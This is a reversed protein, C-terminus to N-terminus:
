EGKGVEPEEDGFIFTLFFYLFVHTYYVLLFYIKILFDIFFIQEETFYLQEFIDVYFSESSFEERLLTQM